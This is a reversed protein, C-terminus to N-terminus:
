TNERDLYNLIQLSVVWRLQHTTKTLRSSFNSRHHLYNSSSYSFVGHEIGKVPGGGEM